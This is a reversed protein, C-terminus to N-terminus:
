QVLLINLKVKELNLSDLLDAHGHKVCLMVIEVAKVVDSANHLLNDVSIRIHTNALKHRDAINFPNSTASSMRPIIYKLMTHAGSFHFNSLFSDLIQVAMSEDIIKDYPPPRSSKLEKGPASGQFEIQALSLPNNILINVLLLLVDTKQARAYEFLIQNILEQDLKGAAIAEAIIMKLSRFENKNLAALIMSSFAQEESVSNVGDHYSPTSTSAAPRRFVNDRFLKEVSAVFSSASSVSSSSTSSASSSSSSSSSTPSSTDSVYRRAVLPRDLSAKIVRRGKAEEGSSISRRGCRGGFRLHSQILCGIGGRGDRCDLRYTRYWGGSNSTLQSLRGM